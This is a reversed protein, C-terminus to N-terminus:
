TLHFRCEVRCLDISLAEIFSVYTHNDTNPKRIFLNQGSLEVGSKRWRIGEIAQDTQRSTSLLLLVIPVLELLAGLEGGLELAQPM